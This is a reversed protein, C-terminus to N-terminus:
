FPNTSARSVALSGLSNQGGASLHRDDAWLWATSGVAALLTSTTCDPLAVSCAGQTTNAFSGQGAATARDSVRLYQDLQILGIKRGDNLLNTLMADNFRASLRSLLAPNANTSGASRDGAYPALGIDPITSILVRADLAALRNAQAALEAGAAAVNELLQAEGAGPFQEFQAIVDNVGVLLTVLDGTHIGGDAVQADIQGALDAAKAGVAARIRSDSPLPAAGPTASPCQAFALGYKLAVTQVWIPNSRCDLQTTSDTAFANVSYKKGDSTVVSSEDGLAIVRTAHFTTSQNGGGGCAALLAAAALGAASFAARAGPHLSSKM